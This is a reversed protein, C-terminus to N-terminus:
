AKDKDPALEPALGRTRAFTSTRVVVKVTPRTEMPAVTVIVAPVAAIGPSVQAIGSAHLEQRAADSLDFGLAELTGVPDVELQRRTAPDTLVKNIAAVYKAEGPQLAAPDPM